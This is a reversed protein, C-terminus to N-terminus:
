EGLLEEFLDLMAKWARKAAVANYAAGRSPDNGAAPDTFSHVAHALLLAQWDAGAVEMEDKFALLEADPVHPDVAGHLVLVSAKVAGPEAPLSTALGGHFSAVGLLPMGARAMELVTTGGFCFGLALVRAPDVRGTALLAKLGAEARSRMLLRDERFPKSLAAAEKADAARVEKGYMDVALVVYGLAALRTVTKRSQEDLGKWAHVVLVGPMPGTAENDYGLWGELQVDGHAYALPEEVTAAHGTGPLGLWLLSCCVALRVLARASQALASPQQTM